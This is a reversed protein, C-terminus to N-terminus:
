KPTIRWRPTGPPWTPGCLTRSPERLSLAPPAAASSASPCREEGGDGDRGSDVRARLM